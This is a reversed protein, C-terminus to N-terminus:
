PKEGKEGLKAIAERYHRHVEELAERAGEYYMHVLACRMMVSLSKWDPLEPMANRRYEAYRVEVPDKDTM